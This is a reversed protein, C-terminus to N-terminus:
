STVAYPIGRFVVLGGEIAGRVLGQRTEVDTLQGVSQASTTSCGFLGSVLGAAVLGTIPAREWARSM